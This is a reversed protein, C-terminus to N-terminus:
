KKTENKVGIICGSIIAELEAEYSQRKLRDLHLATVFNGDIMKLLEADSILSPKVPAFLVCPQIVPINVTQVKPAVLSCGTLLLIILYKM